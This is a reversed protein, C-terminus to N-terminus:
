LICVSVCLAFVPNTTTSPLPTTTSTMEGTHWVTRTRIVHTVDFLNVNCVCLTVVLLVCWAVYLEVHFVHRTFEFNSHPCLIVCVCVYM